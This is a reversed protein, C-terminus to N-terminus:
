RLPALAAVIEDRRPEGWPPLRTATGRPEKPEEAPPGSVAALIRPRPRPCCAARREPIPRASAAAISRSPRTCGKRRSRASWESQAADDAFALQHVCGTGQRGALM